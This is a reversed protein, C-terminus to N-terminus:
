VENKYITKYIQKPPLPSLSLTEHKSLLCEVVQAVRGVRPARKKYSESFCCLKTFFSSLDKSRICRNSVIRKPRGLNKVDRHRLKKMHLGPNIISVESNSNPNFTGGTICLAPCISFEGFVWKDLSLAEPTQELEQWARKLVLYIQWHLMLLCSVIRVQDNRPWM